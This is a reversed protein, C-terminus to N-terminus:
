LHHFQGITDRLGRHYAVALSCSRSPVSLPFRHFNQCQSESDHKAHSDWRYQQNPATTADLCPIPAVAGNSRIM